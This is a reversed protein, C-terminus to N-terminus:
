STPPDYSSLSILTRAADASSPTENALYETLGAPQM